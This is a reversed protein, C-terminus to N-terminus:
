DTTPWHSPDILSGNRLSPRSESGTWEANMHSLTREAIRGQVPIPLNQARAPLYCHIATAASFGDQYLTLKRPILYSQRRTTQPSHATATMATDRDKTQCVLKGPM